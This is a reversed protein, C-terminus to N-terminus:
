LDSTLASRQVGEYKDYEFEHTLVVALSCLCLRFIRIRHRTRFWVFFHTRHRTLVFTHTCLSALVASTLASSM